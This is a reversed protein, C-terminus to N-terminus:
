WHLFSDISLTFVVAGGVKVQIPRGIVRTEGQAIASPLKVEQMRSQCHERLIDIAEEVKEEEVGMLITANGERLFGGASDIRTARFDKVLLADVLATADRQNVIAVLLKM